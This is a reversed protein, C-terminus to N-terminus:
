IINRAPYIILPVLWTYFAVLFKDDTYIPYPFRSMQIDIDNICKGSLMKILVRHVGDQKSTNYNKSIFAEM